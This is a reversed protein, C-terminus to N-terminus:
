GRNYRSLAVAGAGAGAGAGAACCALPGCCCCIVAAISLTIVTPGIITWGVATASLAGALALIGMIVVVLEMSAAAIGETKELASKGARAKVVGALLLPVGLGVACGGMVTPTLHGAVGVCGIILLALGIVGAVGTCCKVVPNVAENQASYSNVAENQASYFTRMESAFNLLSDLGFSGSM